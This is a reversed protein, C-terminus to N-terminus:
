AAAGVDTRITTFDDAPRRRAVLYWYAAGILVAFFVLQGVLMSAPFAPMQMGPPMQATVMRMMQPMLALASYAASVVGLLAWTLYWEPARRTYTWLAWAAVLGVVSQVVILAYYVPSIVLHFQTAMRPWMMFGTVASLSMVGVLIALLAYGLPRKVNSESPHRTSQGSARYELLPSAGTPVPRL